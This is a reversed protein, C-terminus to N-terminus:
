QDKRDSSLRNLIKEAWDKSTRSIMTKGPLGAVFGGKNVLSIETIDHVSLFIEAEEYDVKLCNNSIVSIKEGDIELLGKCGKFGTVSFLITNNSGAAICINGQTAFHGILSGTKKLEKLFKKM